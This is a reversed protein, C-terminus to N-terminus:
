AIGMDRAVPKSGLAPVCSGTRVALIFMTPVLYINGLIGFSPKAWKSLTPICVFLAADYGSIISM